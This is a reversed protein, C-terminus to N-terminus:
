PNPIAWISWKAEQTGIIPGQCSYLSPTFVYPSQNLGGSRMMSPAMVTGVPGPAPTASGFSSRFPVSVIEAYNNKPIDRPGHQSKEPPCSASQWMQFAGKRKTANMPVIVRRAVGEGWGEGGELPLPHGVQGGYAQRLRFPPLPPAEHFARVVKEDRM